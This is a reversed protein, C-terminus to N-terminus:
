ERDGGLAPTAVGWVQLLDGILESEIEALRLDGYFRPRPIDVDITRYIRGPNDTMAFIRDGLFIAERVSHTVFIITKGSRQWVGLLEERMTRATVEDLTSFPEDMLVYLPDIALARAISVRQRQGGSLNLPWSESLHDIRLMRLYRHIIEEQDRQTIEAARVAFLVNEYVTKWPLLRHDQFVFGLRAEPRGASDRYLDLREIRVSGELPPMLGSLVNLLTSKGCGSPGLICVFEGKGISMSVNSLVTENPDYGATLNEVQFFEGTNM